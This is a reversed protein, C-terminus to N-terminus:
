GHAGSAKLIEENFGNRSFMIDVSLLSLFYINFIYLVEFIGM